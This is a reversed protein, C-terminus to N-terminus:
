IYWTTANKSLQLFAVLGMVEDVGVLDSKPIKMCAMANPCAYVKLGLSKADELQKDLPQIAGAEVGWEIDRRIGSQTEESLENIHQRTFRRLGEFTLLMHVEMESALAALSISLACSVRDYEGSNLIIAVKDKPLAKKSTM